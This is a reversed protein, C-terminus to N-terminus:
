KNLNFSPTSKQNIQSFKKGNWHYTTVIGSGDIDDTLQFTKLTANEGRKGEIAIDNAFVIFQFQIDNADFTFIGQYRNKVSANTTVFCLNSPNSPTKNIRFDLYSEMTEEDCSDDGCTFERFEVNKYLISAAKHKQADTECAFANASVTTIGIMLWIIITKAM